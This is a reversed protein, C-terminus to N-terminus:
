DDIDISEILFLGILGLIIGTIIGWAMNNPFLWHAFISVAFFVGILMCLKIM